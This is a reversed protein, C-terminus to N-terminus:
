LKTLLHGDVCAESPPKRQVPALLRPPHVHIVGEDSVESEDKTEFPNPRGVGGRDQRSCAGRVPGGAHPAALLEHGVGLLGHWLSQASDRVQAASLVLRISRGNCFEPNGCQPCSIDVQQEATLRHRLCAACVSASCLTCALDLSTSARGCSCCSHSLPLQAQGTLQRRLAVQTASPGNASPESASPVSSSCEGQAANGGADGYRQSSSCRGRTELNSVLARSAAGTVESARTALAGMLVSAQAGLVGPVASLNEWAEGAALLERLEAANRRADGCNPCKPEDALRQRACTLCVSASCLPCVHSMASSAVQCFHCVASRRQEEESRPLMGRVDLDVAIGATVKSLGESTGAELAAQLAAEATMNRAFKAVQQTLAVDSAEQRCHPCEAKPLKELCMLCVTHHCQPCLYGLSGSSNYCVVCSLLRDDAPDMAPPQECGTAAIQVEGMAHAVGAAADAMEAAMRQLEREISSLGEEFDSWELLPVDDGRDAYDAGPKFWPHQLARSASLRNHRKPNLLLRILDRATKSPRRRRIGAAEQVRQFLGSFVDANWLPLDGRLLQQRLLQGSSDVFPYEFALLFVMVAGAAWMDVRHDYGASRNPLLHMEPAMFAPTGVKQKLLEGQKLRAAIGFDALKVKVDDSYPHGVIMANQPKIDRHCISRSHLFAIGELMQWMMHVVKKEGLRGECEKAAGELDGDCLEMVIFYMCRTEIFDILNVFWEKGSCERMFEVELEVLKGSIKMDRMKKKDLAKV